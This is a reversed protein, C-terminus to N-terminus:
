RIKIWRDFPILNIIVAIIFHIGIFVLLETFSPVHGIIVQIHPITSVNKSYDLHNTVFWMLDLFGSFLLIVGNLGMKLCNGPSGGGLRYALCLSMIIGPYLFTFELTYFLDLNGHVALYMMKPSIYGLYIVLPISLLLYRFRFNNPFFCISLLIIIFVVIHVLYQILTHTERHHPFIVWSVLFGIGGIFLFILWLYKSIWQENKTNSM